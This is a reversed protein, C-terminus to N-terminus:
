ILKRRMERWRTSRIFKGEEKNVMFPLKKRKALQYGKLSDIFLFLRKKAIALKASAILTLLIGYRMKYFAEGQKFKAAATYVKGTPKLHKVHLSPDTKVKWGYFKALLEDATDWGISNRLGGIAEFCEIRYLKIPGRVKTKKSINEYKWGKNDKIFLNGGAIGIKNDAQFLQFIKEFYDPPLIIDADFKGIFSFKSPLQNVGQYFANVVKPGPAHQKESKLHLGKVFPYKLTYRDIIEKTGDTSGDNVIIITKPRLTQAIFSQLCSELHDEENFAPIVIVFNM